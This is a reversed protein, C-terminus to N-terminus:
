FFRKNRYELLIGKRARMKERGVFLVPMGWIRAVFINEWDGAYTRVSAPPTAPTDQQHSLVCAQCAFKLFGVVYM